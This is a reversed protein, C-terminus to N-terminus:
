QDRDTIDCTDVDVGVVEHHSDGLRQMLETGLQGNSGTVFIRM